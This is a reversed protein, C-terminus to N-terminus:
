ARGATKEGRWRPRLDPAAKELDAIHRDLAAFILVAVALEVRAFVPVAVAMEIDDFRQRGRDVGVAVALGIGPFFVGGALRDLPAVDIAVALAVAVVDLVHEDLKVCRPRKGCSSKVSTAKM